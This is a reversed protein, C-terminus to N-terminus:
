IRFMNVHKIYIYIYEGEKIKKWFFINQTGYNVEFNTVFRFMIKLELKFLFRKSNFM